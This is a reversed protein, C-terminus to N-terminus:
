YGAWEGYGGARSLLPASFTLLAKLIRGSEETFMMHASNALRMKQKSTARMESFWEEAVRHNTVLDHSGVLLLLPVRIAKPATTEAHGVEGELWQNSFGIADLWAAQDAQVYDPSARVFNRYIMRFRDPDRAAPDYIMGGYYAAYASIQAANSGLLAPDRNIRGLLDAVSNNGDARALAEVELATAALSRQGDVWQGAGIYGFLLDPRRSAIRLGIISGWSHGILFLKPQHLQALLQEILAVGDATMTEANMTPAVRQIDNARFTKGAGRQDWQVVTFFDEFPSQWAWAAPMMAYGPGGHVFLLIPNRRDRGRISVWQDIGNIRLKRLESIGGPAGIRRGQEIVVRADVPSAMPAQLAADTTAVHPPDPLIPAQAFTPQAAAAFLFFFALLLNGRPACGILHMCKVKRQEETAM